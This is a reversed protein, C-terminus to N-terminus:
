LNIWGTANLGRIRGLSTSYYMSGLPVGAPDAPVQALSLVGSTVTINNGDINGAASMIGASKVNGGTINGTVNFASVVNGSLSLGVGNLNGGTINGTVTILGSTIVNGGTVNGTASVSSAELGGIIMNGYAAVTVVENVVSVSTAAVLKGASNDYGIFASKESGDYYWLQEGRDKGDNNVLPTDNPGRGISILPDEIALTTVNNYVLDGNVTLNGSIVASGGVALAGNTSLNGGIINGTATVIGGTIVNASTINGSASIVGVTSINGGIINGTVVANSGASITGTITANGGTINGTASVFGETIVNGALVNGTASVSSLALAGINALGAINLNGGTINGTASVIGTTILNGAIVNGSATVVAGQIQNVAIVNGAGVDGNAISLSTGTIDGTEISASVVKGISILNGGTVNGFASISDLASMNNSTINGSGGLANSVDLSNLTGVTQLSSNIVNSSLTPGIILDADANVVIGTLQRGNGIFFNADINGIANVAGSIVVDGLSILNGGTINGTSRVVGASDLNSGLVNGVASVQGTTRLNGSVINGAVSLSNLVGVTQLSSNVVNASLINGTIASAPASSTVGTLLSGNGIFLGSSVINGVASVTNAISTGLVTIGTGSVVVVNSVNASSMNITSDEVIQITSTGNAIGSIGGINFLTTFNENAKIFATRLPDGDGDNAVNGVNIVQQSM